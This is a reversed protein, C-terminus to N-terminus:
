KNTQTKKVIHLIGMWFSQGVTAQAVLSSRAISGDYCSVLVVRMCLLSYCINWSCVSYCVIMLNETVELLSVKGRPWVVVSTEQKASRRQDQNIDREPLRASGQCIPPPNQPDLTPRLDVPIARLFHLIEMKGRSCKILLRSHVSTNWVCPCCHLCKSDNDFMLCVCVYIYIYMHIYLIAAFLM